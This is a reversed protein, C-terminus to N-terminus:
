SVRRLFFLAACARQERLGVLDSSLCKTRLDATAAVDSRTSTPELAQASPRCSGPFRACRRCLRTNFKESTEEVRDMTRTLMEDGRIVQLRVRDIADNATADFREVTARTTSSIRSANDILTEIKPRATDLFNKVDEQITKTKDIIPLVRTQVLATTEEAKDALGQMRAGLKRMTLFMGLLILMQLVVASSTVAIFLTLKDM